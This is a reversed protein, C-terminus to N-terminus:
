KSASSNELVRVSAKMRNHQIGCYESCQMVLREGDVPRIEFSHAEGPVLLLDLEDSLHFGHLIDISAVHLRYTEGARLELIPGFSWRKAQVYVDGAPPRVVPIDEGLPNGLHDREVVVEGTAYAVVQAEVKAAFDEPAIEYTGVAAPPAYGRWAPMVALLVVIAAIVAFLAIREGGAVIARAGAKAEAM